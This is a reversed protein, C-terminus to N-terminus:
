ITGLGSVRLSPPQRLGSGPRAHAHALKRLALSAALAAEKDESSALRVLPMVADAGYEGASLWAARRVAGSEDQLKEVLQDVDAASAAGFPAGLPVALPVALSIAVAALLRRLLARNLHNVASNM